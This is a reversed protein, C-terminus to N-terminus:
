ILGKEGLSQKLKHHAEWFQDKIKQLTVEYEPHGRIPYLLPDLEQFILIWYQYNSETSFQKLQEIALDKKGEHAYKAALSASKYITEDNDCYEAYAHFFKAAQEKLRMKEYVFGIKINEEPYINLGNKTKINNLKEYYFFASDYDENYYFFRATEQLIDLRTTDKHWEQVLLQQTQEINRDKAYLILIKLYSSYYNEAYYDLSLNIYEIAEDTFGNQIFANSLNLYRYSMTISDNAGIELQTSKLAYELYKSTNPMFYFYYNALLQIVTASNPNYELAKDLHPLALRYEKIHLYYLAKAVLSEASKSDYLLAKDSFNNIQETYLKQEKHLDLFYYSIAIDAYALSFQADHEIAKEFLSIADILSEDTRKYYPELAQLYYDYATLNETPKKEIQALESPTVVAEIANTIKKAVENQLTFIDEIEYRYQEAWIPRDSVAEILQISLLVQDGVRQSSGEVLYNVNLEKAIEPISKKSDRYQEVSTRSIVKLDKIKQLKTLTSEMLGNIFYINSPHSSENKFPLVAISKELEVKATPSNSFYWVSIFSLVLLTFIFIYRKNSNTSQPEIIVEKKEVQEKAKENNEEKGIEGPPYGYHERFCKIFYSSSSFGVRFSIESVTLSTQKLMERGKQLRVQRIFQSASLQTYKKIKRLLNSRSMNMKEALESVGFQEDSINEEIISEASEIFKKGNISIDAM